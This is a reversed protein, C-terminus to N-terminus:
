MGKKYAYEGGELHCVGVLGFGQGMELQQYCPIQEGSRYNTEEANNNLHFGTTNTIPKKGENQNGPSESM